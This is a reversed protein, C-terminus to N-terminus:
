QVGGHIRSGRGRAPIWIPLPVFPVPGAAHLPAGHITFDGGTGSNIGGNNAREHMYLIPATGTPLEGNAGLPVPLGSASIFKRRNTAVSLDIYEALNCYVESMAGDFLGDYAAPNGGIGWLPFTYNIEIDANTVEDLDSVDNIYLHSVSNGVDWSVLLHFWSSSELYDVTSKINLATGVGTGSVQIKGQWIRVSFYGSSNSILTRTNASGDARFWLSVIGLKGDANGVLDSTRSYYDSTGGFDTAPPCYSSQGGLTLVAAATFCLALFTRRLM